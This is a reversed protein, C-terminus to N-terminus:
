AIVNYTKTVKTVTLGFWKDDAAVQVDVSVSDGEAYTKTAGEDTDFTVTLRLVGLSFAPTDEEDDTWTVVPAAVDVDTVNEAPTVVPQFSAWEHTGLVTGESDKYSLTCVFQKQFTGAAAANLLAASVDEAESDLVEHVNLSLAQGIQTHKNFNQIIQTTLVGAQRSADNIATQLAATIQSHLLSAKSAEQQGKAGLQSVQEQTQVVSEKVSLFSRKLQEFLQNLELAKKVTLDKASGIDKSLTGQARQLALATRQIRGTEVSSGKIDNRLTSSAVAIQRKNQLNLYLPM